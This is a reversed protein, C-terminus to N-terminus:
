IQQIGRLRFGDAPKRGGLDSFTEDLAGLCLYHFEKSRGIPM